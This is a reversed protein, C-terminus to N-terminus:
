GKRTPTRLECLETIDCNIRHIEAALVICAQQYPNRESPKVLVATQAIQLADIVADDMM